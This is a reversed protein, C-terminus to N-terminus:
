RPCRSRLQGAPRTAMHGPVSGSTPGGPAAELPAGCDSQTPRGAASAESLIDLIGTRGNSITQENPCLATLLAPLRAMRLLRREDYRTAGRSNRSCRLVWANGLDLCGGTIAIAQLVVPQDILLPANPVSPLALEHQCNGNTIIHGRLRQEASSTSHWPATSVAPPASPRCNTNHRSRASPRAPSLVSSAIGPFTCRNM